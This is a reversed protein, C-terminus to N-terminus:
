GLWVIGIFAEKALKGTRLACKGAVLLHEGQIFHFLSFPWTGHFFSKTKKKEKKESMLYQTIARFNLCNLRTCM